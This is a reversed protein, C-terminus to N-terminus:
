FQIQSEDPRMMESGLSLEGRNIIRGTSLDIFEPYILTEGGRNKAINIEMLRRYQEPNLQDHWDEHEFVDETYRSPRNYLMIIDADQEISGSDRLDSVHPTGHKRKEAERSLQSLAIVPVDYEKAIYKLRNSIDTIEEYRNNYRKGAGKILQLYDILVLDCGGFKRIHLQISAAIQNTNIGGRDDITIKWECIEATAQNIKDWHNAAERTRLSKSDVGSLNSILRTNLEKYSMELSAFFVSKEQKAATIMYNLLMYTKGIGPRGAGIILNQKQWGGTIDNVAKSGTDVGTLGTTKSAIEIQKITDNLQNAIDGAKKFRSMREEAKVMREARQVHFDKSNLLSVDSSVRKAEELEERKNIDDILLQIYYETNFPSISKMVAKTIFVPSVKGRLSHTVSILDIPNSNDHMDEMAAWILRNQEVRFEPSTILHRHASFCNKFGICNGIVLQELEEM